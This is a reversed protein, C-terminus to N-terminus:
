PVFPAAATRTSLRALHLPDSLKFLFRWGESGRAVDFRAFTARSSHMRIGVGYSTRRLDLDRVRSAVNGADFFVAGDLHTFIALRTEANVVLMHRDHFRYDAFGRLTNNGGLSPQLYFPVIQDATTDSMVSWGHLALVLRDASLPVFHAGEVEYRRFTFTGGGRDSYTAWAARYLGGRVPHSRHDRTDAVIALDGHLYNPQTGRQLAVDTSFLNLPGPNGRQFHGAPSQLQPRHLWGTRARM